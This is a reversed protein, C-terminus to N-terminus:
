SIILNIGSYIIILAFIINLWKTKLRNVLFAGFFGGLLTPLSIKRLLDFDIAGAKYYAFIGIFSFCITACLAQAFIDKKENKTLLSLTLILIIGGGTGLFGNVGGALFSGLCFLFFAVIKNKKKLNLIECELKKVKTM